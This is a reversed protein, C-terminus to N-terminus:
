ARFQRVRNDFPLPQWQGPLENGAASTGTLRVELKDLNTLAGRAATELIAEVVIGGGRATQRQFVQCEVPSVLKLAPPASTQAGVFLVSGLLFTLITKMAVIRGAREHVIRAM